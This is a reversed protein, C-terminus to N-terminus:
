QPEPFNAQSWGGRPETLSMCARGNRFANWASITFALRKFDVRNDNRGPPLNGFKKLLTHAPAGRELGFNEIIQQVFFEEAAVRNKRACLHYGLGILTPRCPVRGASSYIEGARHITHNDIDEVYEVVETVTPRYNNLWRFGRDWSIAKVAIAAVAASNKIKRFALVDSATRKVGQDLVDRVAPDLNYVVLLWAPKGAEVIASLRHQGDLLEGNWDFQVAQGTLLWKGTAIDRAYREVVQGRQHRNVNNRTLLMNATVPDVLMFQAYPERDNKKM